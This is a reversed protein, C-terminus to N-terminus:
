LGITVVMLYPYIQGDVNLFPYPEYNHMYDNWTQDDQGELLLM